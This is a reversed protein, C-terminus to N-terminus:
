PTVEPLEDLADDARDKVRAEAARLARAMEHAEIVGDDNADILLLAEARNRGIGTRLMHAVTTNIKWPPVNAPKIDRQGDRLAGAFELLELAKDHLAPSPARQYTVLFGIEEALAAIKDWLSFVEVEVIKPPKPEVHESEAIFRGACGTALVLLAILGAALLAGVLGNLFRETRKTM